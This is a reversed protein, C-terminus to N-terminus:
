TLPSRTSNPNFDRRKNEDFINFARFAFAVLISHMFLGTYRVKELAWTDHFHEAFDKGAIALQDSLRIRSIFIFLLFIPFCKNCIVKVDGDSVFPLISIDM